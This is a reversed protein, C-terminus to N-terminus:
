GDLLHSRKLIGGIGQVHREVGPFAHLLVHAAAIWFDTVAVLISTRGKPTELRVLHLPANVSPPRRDFLYQPILVCCDDSATRHPLPCSVNQGFQSHFLARRKVFDTVGEVVMAHGRRAPQVPARAAPMSQELRRSQQLVCPVPHPVDVALSTMM